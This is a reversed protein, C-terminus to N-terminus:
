EAVLLAIKDILARVEAGQSNFNNVLISFALTGGSAKQAYGSLAAVHSLSGTKAHIRRAAPNGNFRTELTGDEGGVPLLSIWQERYPSAYMYRLLAVIAGPTVLGLRSLGSGDEFRYDGRDIGVEKLFDREEELGAQRSGTGRRVRAVERLAMEAHLNQSVKDLITLTEVLPQSTRRALEIGEPRPVAGDQEDSPFRHRAVPRGRIEIGRRELADALACAAYLAPDDIALLLKMSAAPDSPMVGWLVLQRAGSPREVRVRSELGPGTRVRNDITFYEFAPWLTVQPPEGAKAARLTLAFVNDNVTLASVPAGYDWLVDDRAWGQPYPEWVYASDDGIVDGDIRRIGRAAVQDALAEIASLPEEPDPGKRYPVARGSLTPDGGGYLVIDRGEQRVVTQFRYDPGLRTLALATTFLKTNSAPVFLRGANSAYVAEGKELDYVEVGVFAQRAVPSDSLLAELRESLTQAPAAVGCVVLMVAIWRM